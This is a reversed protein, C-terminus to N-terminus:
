QAPLAMGNPRGRKAKSDETKGTRKDEHDGKPRANPNQVLVAIEQPEDREM